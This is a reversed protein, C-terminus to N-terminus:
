VFHQLFAAFKACVPCPNTTRRLQQRSAHANRVGAVASRYLDEADTDSEICRWNDSDDSSSDTSSEVAAAEFRRRQRNRPPTVARRQRSRRPEATRPAPASLPPAPTTQVAPPRIWMDDDDDSSSIEIAAPGAEAHEAPGDEANAATNTQPHQQAREEESDSTSM